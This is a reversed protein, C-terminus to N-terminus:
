FYDSFVPESKGSVDFDLTSPELGQATKMLMAKCNLGVLLSSSVKTGCGHHFGPIEWIALPRRLQFKELTYRDKLWLSGQFV